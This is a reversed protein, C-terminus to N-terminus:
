VIEIHMQEKILLCKNIFFRPILMVIIQVKLAIDTQATIGTAFIQPTAASV